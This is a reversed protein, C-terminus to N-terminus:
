FLVFSLVFVLFLMSSHVVEQFDKMSSNLLKFFNKAEAKSNKRSSSVNSRVSSKRSDAISRRGLFSNNRKEPTPPPIRSNPSALSFRHFMGKGSSSSTQVNSPSGVAPAAIGIEPLDLDYNKEVISYKKKRKAPILPFSPNKSPVLQKSHTHTPHPHTSNQAITSIQANYKSSSKSHHHTTSPTKEYVECSYLHKTSSLEAEKIKLLRKYKIV